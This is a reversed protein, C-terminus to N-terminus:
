EAILKGTAIIQDDQKLSYFYIGNQLNGREIKIEKGSINQINKVEQGLVDYLIIQANKLNRDVTIVTQFQFPNPYFKTENFSNGPDNIGIINCPNAVLTNGSSTTIDSSNFSLSLLDPSRKFNLTPTVVTLSANSVSYTPSLTTCGSSNGLSDTKILYSYNLADTGQYNGAIIFGKDTTQKVSWGEAGNQNVYRKSWLISGLGNMKILCLGATDRGVVVYRGDTTQHIANISVGATAGYTKAWEIAGWAGIKVIKNGSYDAIFIYGGEATQLLRKDGYAYNGSLMIEPYERVWTMNGVVDFEAIWFPENTQGGAWIYDGFSTQLAAGIVPIVPSAYHETKTWLTDGTSNTKILRMQVGASASLIYGGDTTQEVTHVPSYDTVGPADDFQKGWVFNGNADLKVLSAVEFGGGIIYGGDSTQRVCFATGGLPINGAGFIRTFITDGSANTKILRWSTENSYGSTIYGGDSTQQVSYLIEQSNDNLKYTKQFMTQANM